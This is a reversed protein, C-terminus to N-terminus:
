YFRQGLRFEKSAAFRARQADSELRGQLDAYAERAWPYDKFLDVTGEVWRLREEPDQVGEGALRYLSKQREVTVGYSRLRRVLQQAHGGTRCTRAAAEFLAAAHADDGLRRYLNGVHAYDFHDKCRSAASELLRSAWERDGLDDEVAMALKTYDEPAIVQRREVQQVWGQYYSGAADRGADKDQMEQAAMRCLERLWSFHDSHEACFDMLRRTWRSDKLYRDITLILLRYNDFNYADAALRQEAAGLLKAAYDPDELETMVRQALNLHQHFTSLEKEKQQFGAYRAQNAERKELKERVRALWEADDPFHRDVADTVRRMEDVSTVREEARAYLDRAYASDGAAVAGEAVAMYDAPVRCQLEAKRLLEIAYDPDAPSEMADRALRALEEVGACRPERSELTTRSAM